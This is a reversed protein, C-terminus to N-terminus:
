TLLESHRNHTKGAPIDDLNAHDDGMICGNSNDSAIASDM